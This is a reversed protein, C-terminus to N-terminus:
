GVSDALFRGTELCAGPPQTDGHGNYLPPCPSCPGSKGLLGLQDTAGFLIGWPGGWVRVPTVQALLLSPCFSFLASPQGGGRGPCRGRCHEKAWGGSPGPCLGTVWVRGSPSPAGTGWKQPPAPARRLQVHGLASLLEAEGAWAGESLCPRLTLSPHCRSGPGAPWGTRASAWSRCRCALGRPFGLDGWKASSM